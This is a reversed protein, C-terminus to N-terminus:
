EKTFTFTTGRQKMTFVPKAADFELRFDFLV